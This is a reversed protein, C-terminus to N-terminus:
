GSLSWMNSTNEPLVLDEWSVGRRLQRDLQAMCAIFTGNDPRGGPFHKRWLIREGKLWGQNIAARMAKEVAISSSHFEGALAPYLQKTLFQDPRLEMRRIASHLYRTGSLKGPLSFLELLRRINEQAGAEGAAYDLLDGARQAVVAASCPRLLLYSVGLAALADVVYGSLSRVTVLVAPTIGMDRCRSLLTIGDLVRLHLDLVLLDPRAQELLTLAQDGQSATLVTGRPALLRALEQRFEGSSEAILITNM